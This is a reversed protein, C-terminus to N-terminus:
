SQLYLFRKNVTIEYGTEFKVTINKDSNIKTVEGRTITQEYPNKSGQTITYVKDGIKM